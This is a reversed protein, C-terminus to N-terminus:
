ISMWKVGNRTHEIDGIRHLHAEDKECELKGRNSHTYTSPCKKDVIAKEVTELERQVRRIGCVHGDDSCGCGEQIWLKMNKAGIEAAKRLNSRDALLERIADAMVKGVRYNAEQDGSETLDRQSPLAAIEKLREDSIM